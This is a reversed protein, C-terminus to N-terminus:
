STKIAIIRKFCRNTYVSDLLSDLPILIYSDRKGTLIETTILVAEHKKNVIDDLYKPMSLKTEGYSTVNLISEKKSIKQYDKVRLLAFIGTQNKKFHYKTNKHYTGSFYMVLVPVKWRPTDDRVQKWWDPVHFRKHNKCEIVLSFKKNSSFIDGQVYRKDFGGSLPTRRFPINFRETFKEAVKREFTSGKERVGM